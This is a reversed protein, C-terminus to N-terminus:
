DVINVKIQWRPAQNLKTTSYRKSRHTSPNTATAVSATGTNELDIWSDLYGLLVGEIKKVNSGHHKNAQELQYHLQLREGIRHAQLNLSLLRNPYQPYWPWALLFDAGNSQELKLTEGEIIHYTYLDGTELSRTTTHRHAQSINEKTVPRFKRIEIKLNKPATDIATLVKKIEKIAKSSARVVLQHDIATISGRGKIIPLLHELLVSAPKQTSIVTTSLEKANLGFPTIFVFLFLHIRVLNASM